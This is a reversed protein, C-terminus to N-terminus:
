QFFRLSATGLFLFSFFSLVGFAAIGYDGSLMDFCLYGYTADPV